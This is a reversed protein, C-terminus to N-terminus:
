GCRWTRVGGAIQDVLAQGIARRQGEDALDIGQRSRVTALAARLPRQLLPSRLLPNTHLALNIGGMVRAQRPFDHRFYDRMARTFVRQELGVLAHDLDRGSLGECTPVEAGRRLREFWGRNLQALVGHVHHLFATGEASFVLSGLPGDLVGLGGRPHTVCAAAAFFRCHIRRGDTNLAADMATYLRHNACIGRPQALEGSGEGIWALM